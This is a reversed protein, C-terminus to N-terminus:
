YIVELNKDAPMNPQLFDRILRHTKSVYISLLIAQQKKSKTDKMNNALFYKIAGIKGWVPDM